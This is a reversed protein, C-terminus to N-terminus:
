GLCTYMAVILFKDKKSRSLNTVDLTLVGFLSIGLGGLFTTFILIIFSWQGGVVNYIPM